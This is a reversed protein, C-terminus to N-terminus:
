PITDEPLEAKTLSDQRRRKLLWRAVTTALLPLAVSAALAFGLNGQSQAFRGLVAYVLAIGLNSLLVPPLFQRWTMNSTGLFLVAAEALIPLPRTIILLWTGARRSLRDIEDLEEASSLRVALPRGCVRALTFAVIAGLTMGLWSAATAAAIGLQAGAFTSVLSSPVPLFVDVALVAVTVLAVTGLSPPPDLWAAVRQDLSEGLLLFPVIPVLLALVIIALPRWIGRM